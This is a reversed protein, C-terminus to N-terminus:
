ESVFEVERPLMRAMSCNRVFVLNSMNGGSVIAVYENICSLPSLCRPSFSFAWIEFCYCLFTSGPSEQNRTRSEVASSGASVHTKSHM